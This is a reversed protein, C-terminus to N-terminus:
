GPSMANITEYIQDLGVSTVAAITFLELTGPNTITYTTSGDGNDQSTVTRGYQDNQQTTM